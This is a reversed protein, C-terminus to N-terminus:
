YSLIGEKINIFKFKGIDSLLRSTNAKTFQQYSSLPNKVYEKKIPGIMKAIDNYSTAIGTGVNYIDKRSKKLLKLTITAADSVNILDRSQKGNGYIKVPKQAKKYKIFLNIISAYNGKENEGKGYVNFYRLGVTDLFGKSRYSKAIAENILKTKAYHNSMKSIDIREEESFKNSYVASSSAYLFKKCGNIYAASLVSNFGNVNIDYSRPMNRDFEVNSTIAALHIIYDQNKTLKLITEKDRIDGKKINIGSIKTTKYDIGSVIYGQKLAEIAINRGIFGCIGTIFLKVM